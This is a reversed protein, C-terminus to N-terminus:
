FFMHVIIRTRQNTSSSSLFCMKGHPVKGYYIFSSFGKKFLILM